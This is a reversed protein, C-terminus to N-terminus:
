RTTSPASGSGSAPVTTSAADRPPLPDGSRDVDYWSFAEPPLCVASQSLLAAGLAGTGDFPNLPRGFAWSELFPRTLGQRVLGEALCGAQKGTLNGPGALLSAVMDTQDVCGAVADTVLNREAPTLDIDNLSAGTTAPRYGLEALRTAGVKDVIATAACRAQDPSPSWYQLGDPSAGLDYALGEVLLEPPVPGSEPFVPPASPAASRGPDAVESASGKDQPICGVLVLAAVAAVLAWPWRTRGRGPSREGDPGPRSGPM